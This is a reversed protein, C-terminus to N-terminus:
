LLRSLLVVRTYIGNKIQKRQYIARPDDDIEESIEFNRPLPHMIRANPSLLDLHKKQLKFYSDATGDILFREKQIRTFYIVDMYPLYEEPKVRQCKPYYEDKDFIEERDPNTAPVMFFENNEYLNLLKYLSHVTRSYKLDGCFMVKLNNLKGFEKYITYLDLINQTPHEDSGNGANIIPVDSYEAYNIWDKCPHRCVIIDGYQSLTRFTDKFSEGKKLSSSQASNTESIVKGGFSIMAKEFSFRTRTSPEGFFSILTKNNIKSFFESQISKQELLNKEFINKVRDTKSFIDEIDPVTLQSISLFNKMGQIICIIKLIDLLM